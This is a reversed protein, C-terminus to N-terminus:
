PQYWKVYLSSSDSPFYSEGLLQYKNQDAEAAMEYESNSQFWYLGVLNVILLISAAVSWAIKLYGMKKNEFKIRLEIQKLLIPDPMSSDSSKGSKLVQEIWENRNM